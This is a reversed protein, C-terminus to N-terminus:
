NKWKMSVESALKEFHKKEHLCTKTFGPRSEELNKMGMNQMTWKWVIPTLKDKFSVFPLMLLILKVNNSSNAEALLHDRQDELVLRAAEEPDSFMFFTEDKEQVPQHGSSIRERDSLTAQREKMNQSFVAAPKGASDGFYFSTSM